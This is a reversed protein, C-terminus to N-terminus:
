TGGDTDSDAPRMGARRMRRGASPDNVSWVVEADVVM